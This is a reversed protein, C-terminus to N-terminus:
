VRKCLCYLLGIHMVFAFLIHFVYKCQYAPVFSPSVTVRMTFQSDAYRCEYSEGGKQSFDEAGLTILSVANTYTVHHAVISSFYGTKRLCNQM